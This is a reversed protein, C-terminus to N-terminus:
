HRISSPRVYARGGFYFLWFKDGINDNRCGPVGTDATHQMKWWQWKSFHTLNKSYTKLKENYFQEM